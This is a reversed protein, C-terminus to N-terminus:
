DRSSNSRMKKVFEKRRYDLYFRLYNRGKRLSSLSDVYEGEGFLRRAESLAVAASNWLQDVETPPKPPVIFEPASELGLHVKLRAAAAETKAYIEWIEQHLDFTETKRHRRIVEDIANTLAVLANGIELLTEDL